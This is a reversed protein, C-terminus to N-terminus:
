HTRESIKTKTRLMYTRGKSQFGIKEFLNQSAVNDDYITTYSDHGLEAVKKALAKTVLSGFGRKQYNELTQLAM